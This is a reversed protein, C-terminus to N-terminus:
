VYCDFLGVFGGFFVGGVLYEVGIFVFIVEGVFGFFWEIWWGKGFMDCDVVVEFVDEMWFVDGGIVCYDDVEGVVLELDDWDVFGVGGDVEYCGDVWYVVVFFCGFFNEVVGDFGGDFEGFEYLVCVCCYFEVDGVIVGVEVLLEGGFVYYYNVIGVVEEIGDKGGVDVDVYIGCVVGYVYDCFGVM